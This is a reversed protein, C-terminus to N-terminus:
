DWRLRLDASATLRCECNSKEDSYIESSFCRPCKLNALFEIVRCRKACTLKMM